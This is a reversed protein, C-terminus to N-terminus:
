RQVTQEPGIFGVSPNGASYVITKKLSVKYSIRIGEFINRIYISQKDKNNTPKNTVSSPGLIKTPVWVVEPGDFQFFNWFLQFKKNFICLKLVFDELM